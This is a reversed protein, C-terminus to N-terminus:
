VYLEYPFTSGFRINDITKCPGRGVGFNGSAFLVSVGARAGLKSFLYCM